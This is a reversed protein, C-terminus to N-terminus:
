ATGIRLFYTALHGFLSLGALAATAGAPDPACGVRLATANAGDLDVVSVGGCAAHRGTTPAIPLGRVARRLECGRRVGGHGPWFPIHHIEGM